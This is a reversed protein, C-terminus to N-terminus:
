DLNEKIVHRLDGAMNSLKSFSESAKEPDNVDLSAAIAALQEIAELEETIWYAELKTM